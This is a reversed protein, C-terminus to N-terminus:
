KKQQLFFNYVSAIIAGLFWGLLFIEIIGLLVEWFPVEMRIVTTVDIGHFLSNFFFITGERGVTAMLLICGLYFVAFAAGIALGFRKIEIEKM